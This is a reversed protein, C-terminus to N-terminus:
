SEKNIDDAVYHIAHGMEEIVYRAIKQEKNLRHWVKVLDNARLLFSKAIKRLVVEDM